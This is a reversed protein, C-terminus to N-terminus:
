YGDRVVLVPCHARGACHETVSGLLAGSLEGHGRSGLALMDAGRSVDVLVTAARGEIVLPVIEVRPHHQRATRVAENVLAEADGRPDYGSPYVVGAGYSQPWEWTAVVEVTTATAEAMTAIWDLAALSSSSGDVGVVLRHGSGNSQQTM